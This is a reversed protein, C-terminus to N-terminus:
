SYTLSFGTMIPVAAESILPFLKKKFNQINKNAELHARSQVLIEMMNLM